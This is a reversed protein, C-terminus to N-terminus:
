DIMDDVIVVVGVAEHRSKPGDLATATAPTQIRANKATIAEARIKRRSRIERCQISRRVVRKGLLLVLSSSLLLL